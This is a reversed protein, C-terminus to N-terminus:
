YTSVIDPFYQNPLQASTKYPPDTSPTVGAATVRLHALATYNGSSIEGVKLILKTSAFTHNVGVNSSVWAAPTTWLNGAADYFEGTTSTGGSIITALLSTNDYLAVTVFARPSNADGIALVITYTGASPLDFEFLQPPNPTGSNNFIFSGGALRADISASRNLALDNGSDWTNWGFTAGGRTVPYADTVGGLCYTCNTPDSVYASTQRFDIGVDFAM